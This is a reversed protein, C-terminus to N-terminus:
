IISPDSLKELFDMKRGACAVEFLTLPGTQPEAAAFRLLIRQTEVVAASGSFEDRPLGLPGFGVATVLM